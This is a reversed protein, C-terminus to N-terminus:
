SLTIIPDLYVQLLATSTLWPTAYIYGAQAPQPSSLTGSITFRWGARWITTNDTISQGDVATAFATPESGANQGGTTCFFIRGPNSAVKCIAGTVVIASNSRATVGTDWASTDASLAGGLTFANALGTTRLASGLMTSGSGPYEINLYIDSTLPMAVQNAVGYMTVTVNSSINTNWTVAPIGIFPLLGGAAVAYLHSVSQGAINAGATRVVTTATTAQGRGMWHEMNYSVGGTTNLVDVEGCMGPLVSGTMLSGLKCDKVLGYGAGAISLVTAAATIASFDCGEVRAVVPANGATVFVVSGSFGASNLSNWAPQSNLWTFMCGNLVVSNLRSGFSVSTELWWVNLASSAANLNINGQASFACGEFWFSGAGGNGISMTSGSVFTIGAFYANTNSSGGISIANSGTTTITAGPQFSSGTPPAVTPDVSFFFQPAVVNNSAMNNLSIASAQTEAHASSFYFSNGQASLFGSLIAIMTRPYPNAFAGFGSAAGLSTWTASGDTTTVGATGSFTPHSASGAGSTSCIQLSASTSDYIVFGLVPTASATWVPQNPSSIDGNLGPWGTCEQWTAGSDTFKQGRSAASTSWAPESSGTTGAIICVFIRENNVTPTANQRVTQGATKATTAAWKTVAFYGTTSGNGYTLYWAAPTTYTAM